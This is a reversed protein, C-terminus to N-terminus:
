SNGCVITYDKYWIDGKWGTETVALDAIWHTRDSVVFGYLIGSAVMLPYNNDVDLRFEKNSQKAYSSIM